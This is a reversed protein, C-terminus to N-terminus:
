PEVRQAWLRLADLDERALEQEDELVSVLDLVYARQHMRVCLHQPIDNDKAYGFRATAAEADVWLSAMFAAEAAESSLGVHRELWSIPDLQADRQTM